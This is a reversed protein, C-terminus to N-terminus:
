IEFTSFTMRRTSYGQMFYAYAAIGLNGVLPIAYALATSHVEEAFLGM